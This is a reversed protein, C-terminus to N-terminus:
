LDLWLRIGLGTQFTIGAEPGGIAEARKPLKVSVPEALMPAQFGATAFVGFPGAFRSSLELRSEFTLLAASTPTPADDGSAEAHREGALLGSCIAIGFPLGFPPKSCLEVRGAVWRYDISREGLKLRDFPLILLGAGIGFHPIWLEAGLTFGGADDVLTGVDYIAGASASLTTQSARSRPRPREYPVYPLEFYARAPPERRPRARPPPPPPPEILAAPGADLLIAVTVVLARSLVDCGPGEDGLTREGTREGSLVIRALYGRKAPSISVAVAIDASALIVPVGALSDVQKQLSEGDICSEAGPERTLTLTARQPESLARRPSFAGAILLFFALWRAVLRAM